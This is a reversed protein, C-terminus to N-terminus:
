RKSGSVPALKRVIAEVLAEPEEMRGPGVARCAQWGAAPGVIDYGDARLQDINRQNAPQGWMIENMSPAILVPTQRRDIASLILCVVDDTIGHALKACCDMTAPAVIALDCRRALAIHQPDQSEVHEWIGTYVHRGSLAQLTMPTIFKAASETMAVTVACGAQALRSVLTATKYAAIGGTVGVFVERGKLAETPMPGATKPHDGM